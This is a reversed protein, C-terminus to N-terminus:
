PPQARTSLRDIIDARKARGRRARLAIPRWRLSAAAFVSGLLAGALVDLVVHQRIALTSWAIAVFWAANLGRLVAPAGVERLLQEIRWATFIAVAVHLSPCANGSADVGQLLAFGPLGAVDARLLPVATPWLYFCALGTLCLVSVWLGYAVLERFNPQLGPAIGVYFWLSLYPALMAPQFPVLADLVTLPMTFPPQQPFRLLHFYGVFFVWTFVTTGVLKLPFLRRMRAWLAASWPMPFLAPM